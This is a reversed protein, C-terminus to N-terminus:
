SMPILISGVLGTSQSIGSSITGSFGYPSHILCRAINPFSPMLLNRSKADDFFLYEFKLNLLRLNTVAAKALLPLDTRKEMQIIQRRTKKIM